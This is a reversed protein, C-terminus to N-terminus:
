KDVRHQQVELLFVGPEGHPVAERGIGLHQLRHQVVAVFKADDRELRVVRAQGGRREDFFRQLQHDRRVLFDM